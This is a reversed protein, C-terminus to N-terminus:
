CRGPYGCADTAGLPAPASSRPTISITALEKFSAPRPLSRLQARNASRTSLYEPRALGDRKLQGDILSLTRDSVAHVDTLSEQVGGAADCLADHVSQQLLKAYGDFM